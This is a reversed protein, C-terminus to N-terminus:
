ARAGHTRSLGTQAATDLPCGGCRRRGAAPVARVAAGRASHGARVAEVRQAAAGRGARAAADRLSPQALVELTAGLLLLAPVGRGRRAAVPQLLVADDVLFCALCVLLTGDRATRAELYKIGVLVFLFAVCPDRGCFYGFSTRLAVGTALAFLALAWSPIRAPPRTPGRATAGCCCSACASSCRHRVGAVWVPVFCLRRCSRPWCCRASGASRRPRSCRPATRARRARQRPRTRRLTAIGTTM